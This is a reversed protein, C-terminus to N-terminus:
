ATTERIVERIIKGRSIRTSRDNSAQIASQYYVYATSDQTGKEASLRALKNVRNYFKKVASGVKKAKLKLKTKYIARHVEVLLTLLDAKKWARSNDNFACADVFKLVDDIEESVQEQEEFEDNYRKLYSELEDDRHFYASMITIIFTLAFRVDHMRRVDGASFVDNEEFFKEQAVSEAFKKFAGDYRANHIEMANLSYSTSNIRKFVEKIQDITQRGLDRIVVEYELFQKKHTDTLDAYPLVGESLKLETSGTFYQNLTTMRQQGDVLMETGEATEPDVEGAAIYIEPFPFGNLVTEIFALKHKNSWVLRRQFEPRPILKENRLATLLVRIKRNTATTNM